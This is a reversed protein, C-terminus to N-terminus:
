ESLDVVYIDTDNRSINEAIFGGEAPIKEILDFHRCDKPLGTFILTFQVTKGTEVNMWVPYLTINESHVLDSVHSSDKAFLFTSKWIRIKDEWVSGTYSCHIIVQSEELPESLLKERAVTDVKVGPQVAPMVICEIHKSEIPAVARVAKVKNGSILEGPLHNILPNNRRRFLRFAKFYKSFM